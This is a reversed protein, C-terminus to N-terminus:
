ENEENDTGDIEGAKQRIDRKAESLLSQTFATLMKQARYSHLESKPLIEFPQLNSEYGKFDNKVQLLTRSDVWKKFKEFDNGFLETYTGGDVNKVIEQYKSYFEPAHRDKLLTEAQLEETEEEEACAFASALADAIIGLHGKGILLNIVKFTNELQKKQATPMEPIHRFMDLQSLTDIAEESLGTYESITRKDADVSRVNSLGLLYDASVGFYNSLIALSDARPTKNGCQWDSLVTFSVKMEAAFDRLSKGTKAKQEDIIGRLRTSLVTAKSNDGQIKEMM